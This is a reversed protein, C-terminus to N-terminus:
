IFGERAVSTFLKQFYGVIVTSIHCEKYVMKGEEDEIVSFTNARKRNKTAAHFYGSNRDGLKLWLLRSRQKWYAEEDAYAKQLGETITQILNVDNDPIKIKSNLNKEKHWLSLAGRVSAIRESVSKNTGEKWAELIVQSAEPNNKLRRDYLFIGKAKKRGPEFISLLPKHDSGEYEMYMSRATPFREAWSSNAAARDLRCRVFHEGRQGRWSLPDGSHQLDYLDSEAYFSRLDSFSGYAGDVKEDNCQLDNFDGTIFWPAERAVALATLHNWLPRRQIYDSHGYVFSAFFIKGEYKICTDVLNPTADLVDLTINEKSFLGLGGAGHGKQPVLYHFDYGLHEIKELVVATPNKSEMIFFIDPSITRSIERIRQVKM